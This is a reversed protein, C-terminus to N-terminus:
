LAFRDGEEAVAFGEKLVQKREPSAPNLLPNTHNFHIFHVKSREQPTAKKFRQLTEVIFPHPIQAMDRGPLESGDYFTGDLWARDVGELLSEVPPKLASWKDVDPLYIVTRQPGRIRFGVTETYEDRHPVSFPQVALRENLVTWEGEKLPELQINKLTVLQQWPGNESLFRRMRPMAYVAVKQAGMVERGLHMLGTYHGIHGHTLFVGSLPLGEKAPAMEDLMALQQVFGPGADFMWRQGTSPDVLGLSSPRREQTADVRTRQCCTKTCGAQPYGADQAIGLVLVYPVPTQAEAWSASLGCFLCLFWRMTVSFM